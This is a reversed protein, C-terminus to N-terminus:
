RLDNRYLLKIHTRLASLRWLRRTGAGGPLPGKRQGDGRGALAEKADAARALARDCRRPRTSLKQVSAAQSVRATANSWRAWCTLTGRLCHTHTSPPTPSPRVMAKRWREDVGYWIRSCIRHMQDQLPLAVPGWARRAAVRATRTAWGGEGGVSFKCWIWVSIVPPARSKSHLLMPDCAFLNTQM